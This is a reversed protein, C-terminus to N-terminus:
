DELPDRWSGFGLAERTDPSLKRLEQNKKEEKLKKEDARWQLQDLYEVLSEFQWDQSYINLRLRDSSGRPDDQNTYCRLLVTFGPGILLPDNCMNDMVDVSFQYDDIGGVLAREMTAIRTMLDFLIVKNTQQRSLEAQEAHSSKGKKAEKV